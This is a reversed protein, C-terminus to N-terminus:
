HLQSLHCGTWHISFVGSAATKVSTLLKAETLERIFMSGSSSNRRCGLSSITESLTTYLNVFHLCTKSILSHLNLKISNVHNLFYYPLQLCKTIITIINKCCQFTVSLPLPTETSTQDLIWGVLIIQLAALIQVFILTFKSNIKVM